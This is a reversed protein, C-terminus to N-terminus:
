PLAASLDPMLRTGPNNRQLWQLGDRLDDGVFTELEQYRRERKEASFRQQPNKADASCTDSNVIAEIQEASLGLELFANASSLSALPERILREGYLSAMRNDAAFQRLLSEAQEVQLRWLTMIIRLDTMHIAHTLQLNSLHPFDCRILDFMSRVTQKGGEAKGLTSLIFNSADTYLMLARSAGSAQLLEAVINNVSNIPKIILREQATAHKQLLRLFLAPLDRYDLRMSRSQWGLRKANAADLLLQPERLAVTAGDVDLCRSLFTSSCFATHFIFRPANDGPRAETADPLALLEALPVEILERGPDIFDRKLAKVRRIEDREIPLFALTESDFNFKYALYQPDSILDKAHVAASDTPLPIQSSGPATRIACTM